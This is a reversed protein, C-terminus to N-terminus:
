VPQGDVMNLLPAQGPKEYVRWRIHDEEIHIDATAMTNENDSDDAANRYIPFPRDSQDALIAMPDIDDTNLLADGREQRHRSSETIVQPLSQMAPHIAHNAHLAPQQVQLVSVAQANFEISLLDARGRQAMSLHFGGARPTNELLTVAEELTRQELLARTIVMRPLGASVQRSRLNNVTMALGNQTVAFTHGPISAPYLFSAFAPGEDPRFMGIGCFGAFGPDGDENHTIRPGNASPLLVTTCGDPPMAWVDGRCNWLFVDDFPLQLGEALGRLEDLTRPFHQATLLQMQAAVDTGRWAMVTEWAESNVLYTNAAEAGFRGLAQGLQFPTGSLELSALM